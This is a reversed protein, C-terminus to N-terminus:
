SKITLRTGATVFLWLWQADQLFLGVCGHSTPQAGFLGEPQWYNLHLADGAADFYQTYLVNKVNYEEDPDSIAAQSSTMTENLVRSGPWLRYSGQPTEYGQKGTTVRATYIVEGGLMVTLRQRSLSVEISREANSRVFPSAANPDPLFIHASYVFGDELQYWTRTWGHPVMPWTQDGVIWQEGRVSGLVTIEQLNRLRRVATSRTSPESWVTIGDGLVLGSGARVQV